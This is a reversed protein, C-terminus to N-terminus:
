IFACMGITSVVQFNECIFVMVSTSGYYHTGMREFYFNKEDIAIMNSMLLKEFAWKM